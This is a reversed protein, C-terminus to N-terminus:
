SITTADGCGLAGEDPFAICSLGVAAMLLCPLRQVSFGSPINCVHQMAGPLASFDTVFSSIPVQVHVANASTICQTTSCQMNDAYVYMRKGQQAKM